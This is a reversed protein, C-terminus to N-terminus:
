VRSAHAALTAEVLQHALRVAALAHEEHPGRGPHGPHGPHELHEPHGPHEAHEGRPEAWEGRSLASLAARVPGRVLLGGGGCRQCVLGGRAPDLWAARGPPAVRECVVCRELELAFGAHTLLELGFGALWRDARAVRAREDDGPPEDLVDLLEDAAAFVRPEPSERVLAQRVWRLGRGARELGELWGILRFRPREITADTLRALEAGARRELGVTLRHMPELASLRRPSPSRRAGAAVAGVLGRDATLLSVLLDAEGLPARRVVLATTTGREVVSRARM